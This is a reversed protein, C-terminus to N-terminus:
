LAPGSLIYEGEPNGKEAVSDVARSYALHRRTALTQVVERIEIYGARM